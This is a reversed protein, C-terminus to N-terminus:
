MGARRLIALERDKRDRIERAKAFIRAREEEDRRELDLFWSIQKEGILKQMHQGDATLRPNCRLCVMSTADAPGRERARCKPCWWYSHKPAEARECERRAKVELAFRDLEATNAFMSVYSRPDSPLEAGIGQTPSIPKEVHATSKRPVDGTTLTGGSPKLPGGDVPAKVDGSTLPAKEEPRAQGSIRPLDQGSRAGPMAAGVAKPPAPKVAAAKAPTEIRPAQAKGKKSM